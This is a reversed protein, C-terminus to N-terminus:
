RIVFEVRRNNSRGARTDNGDIPSTEGYGAISLRTENIGQSVLYDRVSEARRLSLLQNYWEPGLSDTHGEVRVKIGPNNRMIPVARADLVAKSVPKIVASDFDFHISEIFMSAQEVPCGDVSDPAPELPCSDIDNHFGDGDTDAPCGEHEEDGPLQYCTDRYDPIGDHDTDIACGTEDVPAGEPTGPCQDLDDPVGDGDSDAAQTEEGCFLQSIVMGGLAGM